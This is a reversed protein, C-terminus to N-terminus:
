TEEQHIRCFSSQYNNNQSIYRKDFHFKACNKKVDEKLWSKQCIMHWSTLNDREKNLNLM